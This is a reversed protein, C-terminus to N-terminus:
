DATNDSKNSSAGDSEFGMAEGHRRFYDRIESKSNRVRIEFSPLAEDSCIIHNDIMLPEMPFM